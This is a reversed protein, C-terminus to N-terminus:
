AIHKLVKIQLAVKLLFVIFIYLRHGEEIDSYETLDISRNTFKM